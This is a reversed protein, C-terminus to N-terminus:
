ASPAGCISEAGNCPPINSHVVRRFHDLQAAALKGFPGAHLEDHTVGGIERKQTFIPEVEDKEAEIPNVIDSLIFPKSHQTLYTGPQPSPVAEKEKRRMREM